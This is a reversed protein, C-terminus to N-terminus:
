SAEARSGHDALAQAHLLDGATNVNAFDECVDFWGVVRGGDMMAQMWGSLEKEGRVPHPETVEAYSLAGARFLVAGTGMRPSLMFTPKEVIRQLRRAEDYTFTYTKQVRDPDTTPMSGVSVYFGRAQFDDIFAQYRAGALVEDGLLLLTDEDEVWVRACEMADILGRQVPQHVFRIPKGAPNQRFHRVVDDARYGVVVVIERIEPIEAASAVVLDVVPRSGCRLLCKNQRETRSGM